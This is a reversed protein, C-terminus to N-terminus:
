AIPEYDDPMTLGLAECNAANYMKTRDRICMKILRGEIVQDMDGTILADFEGATCLVSLGEENADGGGLPPYITLSGSGLTLDTRETLLLTDM